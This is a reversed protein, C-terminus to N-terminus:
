KANSFDIVEFQTNQPLAGSKEIQVAKIPWAIVEQTLSTECVPFTNLNDAASRTSPLKKGINELCYFDGTRELRIMKRIFLLFIFELMLGISMFIADIILIPTSKTYM